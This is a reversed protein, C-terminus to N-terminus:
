KLYVTLSPRERACWKNAVTHRPLKRRLMMLYIVLLVVAIKACSTTDNRQGNTSSSPSAVPQRDIPAKSRRHSTGDNTGSDIGLRANSRAWFTQPDEQDDKFTSLHSRNDPGNRGSRNGRGAGRGRRKRNGQNQSLSQRRHASGATRRNGRSAAPLTRSDTLARQTHAVFVNLM